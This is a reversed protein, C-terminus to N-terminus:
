DCAGLATVRYFYTKIDTLAGADEFMTVATEGLLVADALDARQGRQVRYAVADPVATWSLRLHAHNIAEARLSGEVTGPEPRNVTETRLDARPEAGRRRGVPRERVLEANEARVVYWVPQGVPASADTFSTGAVGTAIRSAPGRVFDPTTGRYVNYLGAAGSGWAAAPQWTKISPSGTCPSFVAGLSGRSLRCFISSGCTAYDPLHHYLSAGAATFFDPTPFFFFFFFFFFHLLM